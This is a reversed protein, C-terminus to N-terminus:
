RVVTRVRVVLALYLRAVLEFRHPCAPVPVLAVEAVVQLNTRLEHLLLALLPLVTGEPVNVLAARVKIHTKTYKTFSTFVFVNHAFQAPVVHVAEALLSGFAGVVVGFDEHFFVELAGFLEKLQKGLALRLVVDAVVARLDTVLHALTRLPDLNLRLVHKLAPQAAIHV